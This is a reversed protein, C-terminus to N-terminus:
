INFGRLILKEYYLFIVTKLLIKLYERNYYTKTDDYKLDADENSSISHM